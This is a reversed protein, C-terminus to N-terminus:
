QRYDAGMRDLKRLLAPWLYKDAVPQPDASGQEATVQRVAQNPRTLPRDGALAAVQMQCARELRYMRQFTTAISPGCTLTGHNRLLMFSRAGLDAVLRPREDHDFAVGEYAHYALQDCILMAEQHLPLLGEQQCSVGTGAVTHLHMVCHADQRAAHVASHITFGATNILYPSPAVIEGDLDVKVLSSATVEEFLLGFPNLLFHREPGPIRVSLHTYLLDDWGMLAVMRYCAALDVRLAAEVEGMEAAM